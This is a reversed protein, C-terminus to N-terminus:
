EKGVRREESRLDLGVQQSFTFHRLQTLLEDRHQTVVQTVGQEGDVGASLQQQASGQVLAGGSHDPLYESRAPASRLQHIINEIEGAAPQAVTNRQVKLLTLVKFGRQAMHHGLYLLHM